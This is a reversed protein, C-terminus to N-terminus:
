SKLKRSTNEIAQLTGFFNRAELQPSSMLGVRFSKGAWQGINGIVLIGYTQRLEQRFLEDDIGDSYAVALVTESDYGQPQYSRTEADTIMSLGMERIRSRFTQAAQRHIEFWNAIGIEEIETVAANLAAFLGAPQTYPPTKVREITQQRLSDFNFYGPWPPLARMYRWAKESLTVIGLGPLGGFCKHSGTVGIDIAWHDTRIPMSGASCATDVFYVGGAKAVISGIDSVPNTVGTNTEVHVITVIDLQGCSRIKQEVIDPDVPVLPPLLLDIVEAGSERFMEGILTGWYGNSIALVRTGPRALNGIAISLASRISGPFALVTGSTEVIRGLRKLTDDHLHWFDGVHPSSISARQADLVRESVEVPGTTMNLLRGFPRPFGHTPEKTHGGRLSPRGSNKIM